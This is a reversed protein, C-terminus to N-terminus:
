FFLEVAVVKEARREQVRVFYYPHQPFKKAILPQSVTALQLAPKLKGPLSILIYSKHVM